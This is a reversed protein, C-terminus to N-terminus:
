APTSGRKPWAHTTHRAAPRPGNSKSLSRLLKGDAGKVATWWITYIANERADVYATSDIKVVRVPQPSVEPGAAQFYIVDGPAPASDHSNKATDDTQSPRSM